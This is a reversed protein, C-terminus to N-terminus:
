PRVHAPDVYRIEFSANRRRSRPRRRPPPQHTTSWPSPLNAGASARGGVVTIDPPPPDATKRRTPSRGTLIATRGVAFDHFEEVKVACCAARRASPPGDPASCHERLRLMGHFVRSSRRGEATPTDSEVRRRGSHPKWPSPYAARLEPRSARRGVGRPERARRARVLRLNRVACQSFAHAPPHDSLHNATARGLVCRGRRWLCWRRPFRYAARRPRQKTASASELRHRAEFNKRM